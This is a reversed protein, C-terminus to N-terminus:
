SRIHCTYLETRTLSIQPCMFVFVTYICYRNTNYILKQCNRTLFVCIKSLHFLQFFFCFFTTEFFLGKSFNNRRLITCEIFENEIFQMRLITRLDSPALLLSIQLIEYLPFYPLEFWLCFYNMSRYVLEFSSFIFIIPM